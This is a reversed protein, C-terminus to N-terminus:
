GRSPEERERRMRAHAEKLKMDNEISQQLHVMREAGATRVMAAGFARDMWFRASQALQDQLDELRDASARQYFNMTFMRRRTSGGFAAHKTNHWFVVVDGPDTEVAVAPVEAGGVGWREASSGIGAQLGDAYSDGCRHSGPIVRVAGSGATVKDLYFAIKISPIRGGDYGDSHWQTDGVYLNGDSSGYNFDEGLIRAVIDHIRPDDLLSSLYESQDPFPVICSRQEQDHPKGHHGGGHEAWVTEFEEIIRDVCDALLGPFRLFGFTNFFNLQQETPHAEAL